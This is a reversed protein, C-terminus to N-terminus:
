TSTQGDKEEEIDLAFGLSGQEFGYSQYFAHAAQRHNGIGSNLALASAGDSIAQARLADLLQTAVGQRRAREAVVMALIRYYHGSREFYYLKAYGLFGLLDGGQDLVLLGYDPHKFLHHLQESLEEETMVYGLAEYLPLLAPVDTSTAQRIHSM